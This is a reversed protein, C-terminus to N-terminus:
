RGGEVLRSAQMIRHGIWAMVNVCMSNGIARYRVSDSAPKGRFPILTHDDPFGQLRECERPTLRRVQMTPTAVNLEQRRGGGNPANLSYSVDEQTEVNRGGVRGREQFAIAPAHAGSALPHCPDGPKPNSFNESSTVQTTDFAIALTQSRQLSNACDERLNMRCDGGSQWDFAIPIIPTGRGTGDESADFGEARLSHTVMPVLIAGDGDGDSSPGKFDRAKIAPHTEHIAVPLLHNAQAANDDPDGGGMHADVCGAVILRDAEEAGNPTGSKGGCSKLTGAIDPAFQGSGDAGRTLRGAVRTGAERGPPPNGSLCERDFLISAPDTWNGLSGVLFVRERRQAVDFYQADLIGWACSYGREVLAATFQDFDNTQQVEEFDGLGIEGGVDYGAAVLIQRAREAEGILERSKESPSHTTEDTWSSLVGPVNEWVMRSPRLAGLLEVYRFALNGRPDAMGGRLGAVSFSQCPTGACVVDVPYRRIEEDSIERMDGLNPVAPYHHALVACPFPEIESCFVPRFGLPIWAAEPAGIGSCFTGFNM